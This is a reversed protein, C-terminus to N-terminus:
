LKKNKSFDVNHISNCFVFLYIFINRLNVNFSLYKFLVNEGLM